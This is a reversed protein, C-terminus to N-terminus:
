FRRSYWCDIYQASIHFNDSNKLEFNENKPQLIKLINSCAHKRLLKCISRRLFAGPSFLSKKFSTSLLTFILVSATFLISGHMM